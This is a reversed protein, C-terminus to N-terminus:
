INKWDLLRKYHRMRVKLPNIFAGVSGIMKTSMFGTIAHVYEEYGFENPLQNTYELVKAYEGGYGDYGHPRSHQYQIIELVVAKHCIFSNSM